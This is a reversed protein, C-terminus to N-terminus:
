EKSSTLRFALVPRGGGNEFHGTICIGAHTMGSMEPHTLRLTLAKREGPEIKVESAMQAGWSAPTKVMLRGRVTKEGFNYLFIPVTMERGEALKYASQNAVIDKDPLLAQMVVTGSHGTLLTTSKPPAIMAPCTRKALEIYLPARGIRLVSGSVSRPRGLHDFCAAPPKQLAFTAENDSWIVLIDTQRGDPKANFLYGHVEANTSKVRGLPRADALLRGAAALALFAPRPTLDPRLVGFQTQSEVFHPLMFYFVAQAGEHMAMSYVKPVRESQVRLDAESPEKLKADGKWQVTVNCETVWLPKGASVSRFDQYLDPYDEFPEYHHLNFTDFYPWAENDQFDHLTALRHIAFVNQGVILGPNGAKLGLWAAKQFTAMESGTHGGFEKIDAENWPEFAALQGQWRHALERYFNYIDRLDPPFRASNTNAWGASLHNVDLVQLGAAAQARVADDYRTHAAFEGRRPEIESWLLRDRVRNMGALQCLNIAGEMRADPYFWAAAVDIGIPSRVPTPAHLPELVGFSIENTAHGLGRVIKYWGVPLLGVEAMGNKCLGNAVLNDDYDVARWMEVEGPPEQVVVPEGALFINGPHSPLPHPIGRNLSDAGVRFVLVALVTGIGAKLAM